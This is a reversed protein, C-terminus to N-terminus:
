EFKVHTELFHVSQGKTFKSVGKLHPFMNKITYKLETVPTATWDKSVEKIRFFGRPPNDIEDYMVFRQNVSEMFYSFTNNEENQESKPVIIVNMQKLAKKSTSKKHLSFYKLKKECLKTKRNKRTGNPCRPM